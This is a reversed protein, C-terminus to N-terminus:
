TLIFPSILAVRFSILLRQRFDQGNYLFRMNTRLEDPPMCFKLKQGKPSLLKKTEKFLFSM